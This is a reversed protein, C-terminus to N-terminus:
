GKTSLHGRHDNWASYPGNWYDVAKAIRLSTRNVHRVFQQHARWWTEWTKLGHVYLIEANIETEEPDRDYLLSHRPGLDGLNLGNRVLHVLMSATQMDEPGQTSLQSCVDGCGELMAVLQASLTYFSGSMYTLGQEVGNCRGGYFGSSSPVQDLATALAPLLLYSDTDAKAYFRYGPYARRITTFFHYTKGGNM